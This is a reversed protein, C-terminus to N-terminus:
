EFEYARIIEIIEHLFLTIALVLGVAYCSWGIREMPSFTAAQWDILETTASEM